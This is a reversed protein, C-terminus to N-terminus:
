REDGLLPMNLEALTAQVADIDYGKELAFIFVADRKIKPYLISKGAITLLKQTEEFSLEFGFALQIVKDRSPTRVGNFLQHGYTRHIDAKKIVREAVTNKEACLESIYDCFAPTEIIEDSYRNVFRGIKNTKFLRQLLTTTSIEAM